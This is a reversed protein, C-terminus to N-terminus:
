NAPGLIKGYKSIESAIYDDFEKLTKTQTSLGQNQLGKIVEPDKNIEAIHGALTRKVSEDTKANMIVGYWIGYDFGPAV